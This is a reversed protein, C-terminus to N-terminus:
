SRLGQYYRLVTDCVQNEEFEEYVRQRAHRGLRKLKAPTKLLSEVAEAFAQDSGNGVLVGTVDQVISDVAGTVSRSVTPVGTAGAELVVNPFGERKTPLLLVTMLPYLDEVNDVRELHKIQRGQANLEDFIHRSDEIPGIILMEHDINKRVLTRRTELLAGAGKDSSFRGVFGLIPIGQFLGLEERKIEIQRSLKPGFRNINVGHSSGAGLVAIKNRGSLRLRIYSDALSHSVSLIHTARSATFSELLWLLWRFPGRTTELRLGRLVYVRTPVRLVWAAFLGLLSAKPTGVSVVGPSLEKILSLWGLLSRFDEVLSPHRKMPITHFKASRAADTAPIQGPNSVLHVEWGAHTLLEPLPGFFKVSEAVTVGLLIRDKRIM